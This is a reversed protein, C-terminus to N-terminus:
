GRPIEVTYPIRMGAHSLFHGCGVSLAAQYRGHGVRSLNTVERADVQRATESCVQMGSSVLLSLTFCSMPFLLM